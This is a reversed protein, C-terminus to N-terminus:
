EAVKEFPIFMEVKDNCAKAYPGFICIIAVIFLVLTLGMSGPLKRGIPGAGSDNVIGGYVLIAGLIGLPWAWNWFSPPENKLVQLGTLGSEGTTFLFAGLAIALIVFVFALGGYLAWNTKKTAM